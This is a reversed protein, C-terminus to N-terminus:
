HQRLEAWSKKLKKQPKKMVSFATISTVTCSITVLMAGSWVKWIFSFNDLHMCGIKFYEFFLMHNKQIAGVAVCCSFQSICNVLPGIRKAWYTIGWSKPHYIYDFIGTTKPLKNGVIYFNAEFCLLVIQLRADHVKEEFIWAVKKEASCHDSNMTFLWSIVAVLQLFDGSCEFTYTIRIEM